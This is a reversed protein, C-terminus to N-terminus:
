SVIQLPPPLPVRGGGFIEVIASFDHRDCGDGIDIRKTSKPQKARLSPSCIQRRLWATTALVLSWVGLMAVGLESVVNKYIFFLGLGGVAVEVVSFAANRRVTM